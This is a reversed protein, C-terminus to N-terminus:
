AAVDAQTVKQASADRKARAKEIFADIEDALWGVTRPGLKIPKPFSGDAIRRHLTAASLGTIRKLDAFRFVKVDSANQM